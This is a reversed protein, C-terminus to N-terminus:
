DESEPASEGAAVETDTSKPTARRDDLRVGFRPQEGPESGFHSPGERRPRSRKPTRRQSQLNGATGQLAQYARDTQESVLLVYQSAVMQSQAMYSKRGRNASWGVVAFLMGLVVGLMVAGFLLLLPANEVLVVAFIGMLLGWTLGRAAGTAAVRGPTLKGVVNEVLHLDSGVISVANMPFGEATLRDVGAVAQAYDRYSAVQTGRPMTPYGGPAPSNSSM